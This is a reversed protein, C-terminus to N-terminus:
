INMLDSISIEFAEAIIEINLLSPNREGRELMGIYNHHLGCKQAFEIQTLKHEKRLSKVRTGFKKLIEPM